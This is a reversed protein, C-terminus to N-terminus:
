LRHTVQNVQFEMQRTGEVLALIHLGKITKYKSFLFQGMTLNFHSKGHNKKDM